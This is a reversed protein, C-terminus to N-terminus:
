LGLKKVKAAIALGVDNGDCWQNSWGNYFQSQKRVVRISSVGKETLRLYTRVQFIHVGAQGHRGQHAPRGGPEAEAVRINAENLWAEEGLNTPHGQEDAKHGSPVAFLVLGQPHAHQGCEGIANTHLHQRTNFV